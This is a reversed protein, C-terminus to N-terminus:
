TPEGARAPAEDALVFTHYWRLLMAAPRAISSNYNGIEEESGCSKDRERIFPYLCSRDLPVRPKQAGRRNVLIAQMDRYINIM